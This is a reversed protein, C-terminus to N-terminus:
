DTRRRLTLAGLLLALVVLGAVIAVDRALPGGLADPRTVRDLADYAYTLPLAYSLGELVDNM